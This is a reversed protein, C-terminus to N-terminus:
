LILCHQFYYAILFVSTPMVLYGNKIGLEADTWDRTGVQTRLERSSASFSRKATSEFNRVAADLNSNLLEVPTDDSGQLFRRLSQDVNIGGRAIGPISFLTLCVRVSSFFASVYPSM